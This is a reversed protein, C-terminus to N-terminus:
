RSYEDKKHVVMYCSVLIIFIKILYTEYRDTDITLQSLVNIISHTM